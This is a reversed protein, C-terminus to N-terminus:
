SLSRPKSFYWLFVWRYLIKQEDEGSVWLTGQKMSCDFRILWYYLESLEIYSTNHRKNVLFSKKWLELIDSIHGPSSHQKLYEIYLNNRLNSLLAQSVLYFNEKELLLQIESQFKKTDKQLIYDILRFISSDLEPVINEYIITKTISEYVELLKHIESITKELKNGKIEFLYELANWSFYKGYQKQLYWLAWTADQLSFDKHKTALKTLAKYNSLRKDVSYLVILVITDDDKQRLVEFLEETNESSLSIDELILLKKQTFFSRSHLIDRLTQLEFSSDIIHTVGIDWHKSIFWNKWRLLEDKVLFSTNWTLLQIM